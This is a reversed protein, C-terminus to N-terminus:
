RRGGEMPVLEFEYAPGRLPVRHIGRVTPIPQEFTAQFFESPSIKRVEIGDPAAHDAPTLTNAVPNM